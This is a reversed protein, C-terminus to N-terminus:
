ADGDAGCHECYCRGEGHYSDDDGGYQTGTFAWSHGGPHTCRPEGDDFVASVDLHQDDAVEGAHVQVLAAFGDRARQLVDKNEGIDWGAAEAAVVLDRFADHAQSLLPATPM